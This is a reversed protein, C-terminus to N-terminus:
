LLVYLDASDTFPHMYTTHIPYRYKNIYYTCNICVKVENEFNGRRVHIAIYENSVSHLAGFTHETFSFSDSASKSSATSDSSPSSSSPSAGHVGFNNRLWPVLTTIIHKTLSLWRPAPMFWSWVRAYDHSLRPSFGQHGGRETDRYPSSIFIVHDPFSLSLTFPYHLSDEIFLLTSCVQNIFM